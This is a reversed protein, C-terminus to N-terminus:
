KDCSVQNHPEVLFAKENSALNLSAIADCKKRDKMTWTTTMVRLCFHLDAVKEERLLRGRADAMGDLVKLPADCCTIGIHDWAVERAAARQSCESWDPWVPSHWTKARSRCGFGTISRLEERDLSVRSKFTFHDPLERGFFSHCGSDHSSQLSKKKM